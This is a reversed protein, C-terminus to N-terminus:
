RSYQAFYEDFNIDFIHAQAKFIFLIISISRTSVFMDSDLDEVSDPDKLMSTFTNAISQNKSLKEFVSHLMVHPTLIKLNLIYHERRKGGYKSMKLRNQVLKVYQNKEREALNVIHGFSPIV